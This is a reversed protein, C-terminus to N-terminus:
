LAGWRALFEEPSEVAGNPTSANDILTAEAHGNSGNLLPRSLRDMEAVFVRTWVKGREVNNIASGVRDTAVRAAKSILKRRAECYQCDHYKPAAVRRGGVILECCKCYRQAKPKHGNLLERERECVEREKFYIADDRSVKARGSLIRPNKFAM